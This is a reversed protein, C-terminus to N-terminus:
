PSKWVISKGKLWSSPTGTNPYGYKSLQYIGSYYESVGIIARYPKNQYSYTTEDNDEDNNRVWVMNPIKIDKYNFAILGARYIIMEFESTSQLIQTTPNGSIGHYYYNSSMFPYTVVKWYIRLYENTKEYFIGYDTLRNYYYDPYSMSRCPVHWAGGLPIIWTNRKIISQWPKYCQM